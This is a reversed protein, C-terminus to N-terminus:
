AQYRLKSRIFSGKILLLEVKSRLEEIAKEVKKSSISGEFELYFYYRWPITKLPRSYIMTLNIRHRQFPELAKYLGGPRHPVTMFLLTKGGFKRMTKSIIFFRTINNASQINKEVIKLGYIKAALESCLAAGDPDKSALLAGKSTSEVPILEEVHIGLRELNERSESYAYPQAYIRKIKKYDKVSKNVALVINVALEIERTVYIGNRVFL